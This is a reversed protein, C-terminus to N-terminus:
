PEKKIIYCTEVHLHIQIKRILKKLEQIGKTTAYWKKNDHRKLIIQCQPSLGKHCRLPKACSVYVMAPQTKLLILKLKLIFFLTSLLIMLVASTTLRLSPRQSIADCKLIQQRQPKGLSEMHSPGGAIHTLGSFPCLVNTCLCPRDRLRSVLPLAMFPRTCVPCRIQLRSIPQLHAHPHWNKSEERVLSHYSTINGSFLMWCVGEKSNM